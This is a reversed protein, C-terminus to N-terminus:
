FTKRFFNIVKKSHNGSRVHFGMIRNTVVQKFLNCPLSKFSRKGANKGVLSLKKIDVRKQTIGEM